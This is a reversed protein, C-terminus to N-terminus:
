TTNYEGRYLLEKGVFPSVFVGDKGVTVINDHDGVLGMATLIFENIPVGAM